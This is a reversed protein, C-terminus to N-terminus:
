FDLGLLVSITKNSQGQAGISIRDSVKRQFQVGGVLGKEAKITTKDQSPKNSKLDSTAGFGGLVSVRNKESASCLLTSKTKTVVFQQKRPVVKFKEASVSSERGDALRIIITAGKLFNPVDTKIEKQETVQDATESCTQGAYVNGSALLALIILKKM